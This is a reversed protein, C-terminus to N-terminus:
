RAGYNKRDTFNIFDKLKDFLSLRKEKEVFNMPANETSIIDSECLLTKDASFVKVSGVVDGKKVGIM